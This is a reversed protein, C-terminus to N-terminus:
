IAITVLRWDQTHLPRGLVGNLIKMWKFNKQERLGELDLLFTFKFRRGSGLWDCLKYIVPSPGVLELTFHSEAEYMCPWKHQRWSIVQRLKWVSCMKDNNFLSWIYMSKFVIIEISHDREIITDNVEELVEVEGVLSTLHRSCKIGFAKCRKSIYILIRMCGLSQLILKWVIVWERIDRFGLSPISTTWIESKITVNRERIDRIINNICDVLSTLGCEQM